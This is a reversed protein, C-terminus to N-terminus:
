DKVMVMDLSCESAIKTIRAIATDTNKTVIRRTQNFGQIINKFSVRFCNDLECVTGNSNNFLAICLLYCWMHSIQLFLIFITQIKKNTKNQKNTTKNM